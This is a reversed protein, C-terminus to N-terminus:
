APSSFFLSPSYSLSVPSCIGSDASFFFLYLYALAGGPENAFGSQSLINPSSAYDLHDSSRLLSLSVGRSIIYSAANVSSILLLDRSYNSFSSFSLCFSTVSLFLMKAGSSFIIDKLCVVTPPLNM